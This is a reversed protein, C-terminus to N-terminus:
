ATMGLSDPKLRATIGAERLYQLTHIASTQGSLWILDEPLDVDRFFAPQALRTFPAGHQAAREGHKRASDSGFCFPVAAPPSCILANTGGDRIAPCITLGREHKAVLADIDAASVTPVDAPLVVVADAGRSAMEHAAADLAGCLDDAEDALVEAGADRALGAATEDATVVAVGAVSEAAAAAQLVDTLMALCLRACEDADLVPLLRTKSRRPSKVPILVWINRM